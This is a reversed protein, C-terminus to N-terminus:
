QCLSDWQSSAQTNFEVKDGNTYGKRHQKFDGMCVEDDFGFHLDAQPDELKM